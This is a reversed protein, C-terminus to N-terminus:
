KGGNKGFDNPFECRLQVGLIELAAAAGLLARECSVDWEILESPDDTAYSRTPGVILDIPDVAVIREVVAVATLDACNRVMWDLLCRAFACAEADARSLEGDFEAVAAREEFLDQWDGPTLRDPGSSAFELIEVKEAALREIVHSPPPEPASLILDRGEVRVQVGAARALMLTAPATVRAGDM